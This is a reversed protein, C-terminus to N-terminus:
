YEGLTFMARFSVSTGGDFSVALPIRGTKFFTPTVCVADSDSLRRGRFTQNDFTCFIVSTANLVANRVFVQTGGLMTGRLPSVSLEGKETEVTDVIVLEAGIIDNGDIRFVFRGPEGVNSKEDINVVDDTGSGELSYHTARDGKNFGVKAPNGGLGTFPNGGYFDGTTWVISEYNLIAFSAQGDTLLVVQFSNAVDVNAASGGSFRVMDWTCVYMWSSEFDQADAFYQRVIEDAAEFADVAGDTRQRQGHSVSGTDLPDIDAWFVAIFRGAIPLPAEDFAAVEGDFSIVGNDNLQSAM